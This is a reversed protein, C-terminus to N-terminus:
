KAKQVRRNRPSGIKPSKDTLHSRPIWEYDVEDSSTGTEYKAPRSIATAKRTFKSFLQSVLFLIAGSIAILVLFLFGTETNFNSEDEQVLITENFVTNVYYGGASDTYHLNVTLGLPRGIFAENPIFRYDFSAEQKPAVTREVRGATLNLMIMNFDFPYRFSPEIAHVTFDKEGKNVFGVLFTSVKGALFNQTDSPEQFYFSVQADKSPGVTKVEEEQVTGEGDVEDEPRVTSILLVSCLCFLFQRSSLM